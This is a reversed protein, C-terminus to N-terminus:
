KVVRLYPPLERKPKKGAQPARAPAEPPAEEERAPAPAPEPRKVPRIPRVNDSAEAAEPEPAPAPVAKPRPRRARAKEEPTSSQATPLEPPVDEPWIMGGSGDDTVLAYVASWPLHCWFPARNFSLTCSIGDDDVRLDPIPIVMNLGVQLVLQPQRTFHKPVVVGPRRPDLHVYVSSRELMAHAVDPKPPLKRPPEAM